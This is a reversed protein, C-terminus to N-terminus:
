KNYPSQDYQVFKAVIIYKYYKGNRYVFYQKEIPYFIFNLLLCGVYYWNGILILEIGIVILYGISDLQAILNKIDYKIIKLCAIIALVIGFAIVTNSAILLKTNTKKSETKKLICELIYFLYCSLELTIFKFYLKISDLFIDDNISTFNTNSYYILVLSSICILLHSFSHNNYFLAIRILYFYIFVKFPYLLASLMNNRNNSVSNLILNAYDIMLQTRNHEHYDLADNYIKISIFLDFKAFIQKLSYLFSKFCIIFVFYQFLSGITRLNSNKFNPILLVDMLKFIFVGILYVMLIYTSIIPLLLTPSLSIQGQIFNQITFQIYGSHIFHVLPFLFMVFSIIFCTLEYVYARERFIHNIWILKNHITDLFEFHPFVFEDENDEKDIEIQFEEINTNTLRENM